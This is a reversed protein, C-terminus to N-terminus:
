VVVVPFTLRFIVVITAFHHSVVQGGSETLVLPFSCSKSAIWFFLHGPLTWSPSSLPEPNHYSPPVGVTLSDISDM